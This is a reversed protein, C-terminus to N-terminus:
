RSNTAAPIDSPSPLTPRVGDAVADRGDDRELAFLFDQAATSIAPSCNLTYIARLCSRLKERDPKGAAPHKGLMHNTLYLFRNKWYSQSESDRFRVLYNEMDTGFAGLADRDHCIAPLSIQDKFKGEPLRRCEGTESGGALAQLGPMLCAALAAMKMLRWRM